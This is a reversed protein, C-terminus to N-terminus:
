NISNKVGNKRSFFNFQKPCFFFPKIGKETKTSYRFYWRTITALQTRLQKFYKLLEFCSARACPALFDGYDIKPQLKTKNKM